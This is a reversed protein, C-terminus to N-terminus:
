AMLTRKVCKASPPNSLSMNFNYPLGSGYMYVMYKEALFVYKSDYM